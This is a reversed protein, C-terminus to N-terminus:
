GTSPRVELAEKKIAGASRDRVPRGLSIDLALLILNAGVAAGVITTVIAVLGTSTQFGLWAGALACATAAWFGITRARPPLDRNVWALYIGLGIPVGISLVALLVDDLAVEPFAVQVVVVAALWGALGLVVTFLSRLLVSATRGIRGRKRSRRWLLLLALLAVAPLGFFTGAFGKGLAAYTVDPTFDVNARAYLSTDIKGSDLFANLLRTSAQPQDTWFSTSHGLESLV